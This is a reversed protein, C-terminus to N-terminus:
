GDRARRKSSTRAPNAWRRWINRRVSRGTSPSRVVLTRVSAWTSGRARASDSPRGSHAASALASTADHGGRVEAPHAGGRERLQCERQAHEPWSALVAEVLEFREGHRDALGVVRELGDGHRVRGADRELDDAAVLAHGGAM